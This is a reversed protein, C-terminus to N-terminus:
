GVPRSRGPKWYRLGIWLFAGLSVLVILASLAQSASVFYVLYRKDWSRRWFEIVFRLTGYTFGYLALSLWSYWLTWRRVGLLLFFLGLDGGLEWLQTPLHPLHDQGGPFVIGHAESVIGYCCGNLYCGVRGVAQGLLIYPAALDYSYAMPWKERRVWFVAALLAGLLGGYYVLGGQWVFLAEVWHGQFEPYNELVYFLRAGVISSLVVGIALDMTKQFAQDRSLGVKPAIYKGADRAYLIISFGLAVALCLGYSYFHFPGLTFGFVHFPGLTALIPYM